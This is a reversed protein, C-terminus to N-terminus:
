GKPPQNGKIGYPWVGAGPVLGKVAGHVGGGAAGVPLPDPAGPPRAAGAPRGAAPARPDDFGPGHERISLSRLYLLHCLYQGRDMRLAERDADLQASAAEPLSFYTWYGHLIRIVQATLDLGRLAADRGLVNVLHLPLRFTRIVKGGTLLDPDPDQFTMPTALSPGFSVEPGPHM